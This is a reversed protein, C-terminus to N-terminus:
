SLLGPPIIRRLLEQCREVEAGVEGETVPRLAHLWGDATFGAEYGEGALASALASLRGLRDGAPEPSPFGRVLVELTLEVGEPLTRAEVGIRM